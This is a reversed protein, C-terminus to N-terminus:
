GRDLPKHDQGATKDRGACRAAERLQLRFLLLEDTVEFDQSLDPLPRGAEIKAQLEEEPVLLCAAFVNAQREHYNGFSYTRTELTLHNGAHMVHHGIAHAILERKVPEPLARRLVIADGFYIEELRGTLEEELVLLGLARAIREPDGGFHKRVGEAQRMARRM